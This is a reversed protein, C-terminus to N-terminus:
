RSFLDRVTLPEQRVGDRTRFWGKFDVTWVQNPRRAATLGPHALRPGRRARRPRRAIWGLRQLWRQITRVCPVRQSPHERRLAQHIKKAGWHPRRRRGHQLAGVWRGSLRNPSHRPRRPQDGLGALGHRRFRGLWKYATKRSIGFRRCLKRLSQSRALVAEVLRQRVKILSQIKWPM